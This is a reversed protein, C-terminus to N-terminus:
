PRKPLTFRFTAGEGLASEVWIRGGHNEVIRKCTALGIGTGDYEDRHLRKFVGFISEHYRPDIGIGTDRVAFVWEAGGDEARIEIKPNGARRYKLANALLNQFVQRLQVESAVVEPMPGVEVSAGCEAIARRLAQVVDDVVTAVAVPGAAAEPVSGASSYELLADLLQSMRTAGKVAFAIMEDAGEDLVRGRYRRQLLELYTSITRLPEKLDHSAAYSYQQLDSNTRRLAENLRMLEQEHQKRGTVDIAAGLIGTVQGNENRQAEVVIDFVRRAGDVVVEVETRMGKGTEIVQRKAQMLRETHESPHFDYDTKGLVDDVLHHFRPSYLWTFRLDLDQNFVAVGANALAVRFRDAAVRLANETEKRATVDKVAGLMRVPRGEGDRLVRATTALWHVSGDKWLARLELDYPQDDVLARQIAKSVRDRDDPHWLERLWELTGVFEEPKVDHFRYIQDSWRIQNAVVDWDWLGVEGADAALRVREESQQLAHATAARETIDRFVLVVGVMRGGRDRIPAGSHDITTETSDRGILLTHNALGVTIGEKLVQAAPNEVPQRTKGNVIVLVEELPRGLAQAATWGTLREAVNNLFTVKASADTTIVGDGISTLTLQLLDRAASADSSASDLATITRDREDTAKAIRVTALLLLGFLGLAALAIIAHNRLGEEELRRTSERLLAYEDQEIGASM